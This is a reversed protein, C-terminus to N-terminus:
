SHKAKYMDALDMLRSAAEELWKDDLALSIRVYHKGNEGFPIGPAVLISKEKLLYQEFTESDYDPPTRLWSYIGGKSHVFPLHAESLKAEFKDRRRKFTENQEELFEDYHNLAYTAADQLAGFMGANTHTQYKKLAQIMDKNGVAFGVRFGSM